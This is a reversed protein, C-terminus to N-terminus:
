TSYCEGEENAREANSQGSQIEPDGPQLEPNQPQLDSNQPQLDPNEPQLGPNEPQLDPNEPQLDPNEPQLDPNEPQLDPNEPQLDPNEPQLGPNEPIERDPPQFRQLVNQILDQRGIGELIEKLFDLNEQDIKDLEMLKVFVDMARRLQALHGKPILHLCFIKVNATEEEERSTLESWEPSNTRDM